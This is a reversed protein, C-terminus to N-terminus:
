FGNWGGAIVISWAALSVIVQLSRAPPVLADDSQPAVVYTAAFMQMCVLVVPDCVPAAWVYTAIVMIIM